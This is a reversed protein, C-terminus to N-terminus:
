RFCSRCDTNVLISLSSFTFFTDFHTDTESATCQIRSTRDEVTFFYKWFHPIRCHQHFLCKLHHPCHPKLHGQQLSGLDYHDTKAINQHNQQMHCRHLFM